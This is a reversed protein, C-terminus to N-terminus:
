LDMSPNFSRYDRKKLTGFGTCRAHEHSTFRQNDTWQTMVCREFRLIYSALYFPFTLINIPYGPTSTFVKNRFLIPPPSKKRCFPLSSKKHCLPPSCWKGTGTLIRIYCKIASTRTQPHLGKEALFPAFVKKPCIKGFIPRTPVRYILNQSRDFPSIIYELENKM